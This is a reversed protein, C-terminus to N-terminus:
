VQFSYDAWNVGQVHPFALKLFIVQSMLTVSVALLLDLIYSAELLKQLVQSGTLFAAQPGQGAGSRFKGQYCIPQHNM